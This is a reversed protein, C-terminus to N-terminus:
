KGKRVVSRLWETKRRRTLAERVAGERLPAGPLSSVRLEVRTM